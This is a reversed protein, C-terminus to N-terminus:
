RHRLDVEPDVGAADVRRHYAMGAKGGLVAGVLSVVLALVIAIVGATTLEDTGVPIRPFTNLSGLVDWQSGVVTAVVGLVLTVVIAWVWVGFGQRAGDFRAMRGAVYGGCFYAVLMIVLVAAAGAIGITSANTSAANAADGTSVDNAIGLATGAGAVLATLLVALGMATLWGFFASGWKIGGYAARERAVVTSADAAAVDVRRGPVVGAPEHRGRERAAEDAIRQREAARVQAESMGATSGATHVRGQDDVVTPRDEAVDAKGDRDRDGMYTM